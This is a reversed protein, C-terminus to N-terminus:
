RPGDSIQVVQNCFRMRCKKGLDVRPSFAYINCIYKHVPHGMIGERDATTHTYYEVTSLFMPCQPCISFLHSMLRVKYQLCFPCKGKSYDPIYWGSDEMMALTVRSYVPSYLM